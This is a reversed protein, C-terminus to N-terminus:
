KMGIIRGIINLVSQSTGLAEFAQFDTYTEGTTRNSGDEPYRPRIADCGLRILKSILSRLETEHQENSINHLVDLTLRNLDHSWSHSGELHFIAAKLCKEVAQHIMFACWAHSTEIGKRYHEQATKFDELSQRYWLRANSPDPRRLRPVHPSFSYSIGNCSRDSSVNQFSRQYLGEPYRQSYRHEQEEEEIDSEWQQMSRSTLRSTRKELQQQLYQFAETALSRRDPNKDPHWTRYFRRICEKRESEPLQMADSVDKKIQKKFDIKDRTHPLQLDYETEADSEGDNMSVYSMEDDERSRRFTYLRVASVTLPKGEGDDIRYLCRISQSSDNACTLPIRDLIKVYVYSAINTTDSDRLYVAVDGRHFKNSMDDDLFYILRQPVLTGPSEETNSDNVQIGFRQLIEHKSRISCPPLLDKLYLIHERDFNLKCIRNICEALPLFLRSGREADESIDSQSHEIYLQFTSLTSNLFVESSLTREGILVNKDDFFGTKLKQVCLFNDFRELKDINTRQTANTPRGTQHRILHQLCENTDQSHLIDRVQRLGRCRDGETCHVNSALPREYTRKETPRLRKPLLMMLESEKAPIEAFAYLDNGLLPKVPIVLDTNSTSLESLEVDSLDTYYLRTSRVLKDEPTPLYLSTATVRLTGETSLLLRFLCKVAAYASKKENVHMVEDKCKQKIANLCMALQDFTPREQAGLVSLVNEYQVLDRPARYLYPRLLDELGEDINFVLQNARVLIDKDGVPCIPVAHLGRRIEEENGGFNRSLFAIIRTLIQVLTLRVQKDMTDEIDYANHKVSRLCINTMHQIVESLVLRPEIGLSGQIDVEHSAVTRGLTRTYHTYRKKEPIAESPILPSVTWVFDLFEESIGEKFCVFSSNTYQPHITRRLNDVSVSPVFKITSISGLTGKNHLGKNSQLERLLVWAQVKLKLLEIFNANKAHKEISKALAIFMAGTVECHLGICRLLNRWSESNLADPLCRGDGAYFTRFVENTSDVYYDARQFKGDTDPIFPIKKLLEYIRNDDNESCRPLVNDRVFKIIDLLREQTIRHYNPLVYKMFIGPLTIPTIDLEEYLYVLRQNHKLFVCSVNEMVWGLIFESLELDTTGLTHCHSFGSISERRQTSLPFLPLQKLHQKDSPSLCGAEQFYRLLTDCEIDDLKGTLTAKEENIMHQTVALVDQHSTPMSLYKNLVKALTPSLKLCRGTISKVKVVPCGLKQLASTVARKQGDVNSPDIMLVTKSQNISALHDSETPIIPWDNLATLNDSSKLEGCTVSIFTWLNVLWWTPPHNEEEPKWLVHRRPKYWEAPLQTKIYKSLEFISFHKFFSSYVNHGLGKNARSAQFLTGVISHHIFLTQCKPLLHSYNSLYKPVRRSYVDLTGNGDLQLPLGDLDDWCSLGKLCYKM